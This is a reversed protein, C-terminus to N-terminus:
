PYNHRQCADKEGILNGDNAFTYQETTALMGTAYVMHIQIYLDIEECM